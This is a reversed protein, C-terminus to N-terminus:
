DSTCYSPLGVAIWSRIRGSNNTVLGQDVRELAQGTRKEWDFTNRLSTRWRISSISGGRSSIMVFSMKSFLSLKAWSRRLCIPGRVWTTRNRCPRRARAHATLMAVKLGKAVAMELLDFGRVGMIDLVVVDDATSELKGVADRYNTAEDVNCGRCSQGIEEKLVNLVDPEDDVLLIKKENLISVRRGFPKYEAIMTVAFGVVLSWFPAGIHFVEVGSAAVM